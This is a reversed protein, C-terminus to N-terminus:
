FFKKIHNYLHDMGFIATFYYLDLIIKYQSDTDLYTFLKFVFGSLTFEVEEKDVDHFQM